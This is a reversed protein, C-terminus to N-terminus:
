TLIFRWLHTNGRQWIKQCRSSINFWFSHCTHTCNELSDLWNMALGSARFEAQRAGM